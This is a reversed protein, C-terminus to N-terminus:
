INYTFEIGLCISLTHDLLAELKKAATHGEFQGVM